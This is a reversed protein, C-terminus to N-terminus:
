IKEKYGKISIEKKSFVNWSHRKAGENEVIWMRYGYSRLMNICSDLSSGLREMEGPHFSLLYYQHM